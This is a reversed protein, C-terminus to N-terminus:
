EDNDDEEEIKEVTIGLNELIIEAVFVLAEQQRITRDQYFITILLMLIIIITPFNMEIEGKKM